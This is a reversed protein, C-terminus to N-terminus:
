SWLAVHFKSGRRELGRSGGPAVMAATADATGAFRQLTRAMTTTRHNDLTSAWWLGTVPTGVVPLRVLVGGQLESRVIHGLALMIGEGARVAALAETESSLRIIEPAVGMSALWRGEESHEQIGAPGAFWPRDLLRAVSLPGPLRAMPHGAAAVLTRQYRLFPVCNLGPNAVATGAPAAPRAGLAIDYAREHLLSALDEASEVVVDVSAGPVRKTFLDLLRGAAHEAFRATAVIKLRGADNTANSVEWRAQDALGVIDQAYEALARGGPTLAIGGGARVFLPDGLDQRLASLASSVAPESVGLTEAAAHLSGLRAVLAFTRLQSLTM